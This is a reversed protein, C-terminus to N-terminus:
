LFFLISIIPVNKALLSFLIVPNDTDHSHNVDHLESEQEVQPKSQKSEALSSISRVLGTATKISTRVHATIFINQSMKFYKIIINGKNFIYTAKETPPVTALFYFSEFCSNKIYSEGKFGRFKM